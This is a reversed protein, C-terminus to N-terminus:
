ASLRSASRTQLEEAAGAQEMWRQVNVGRALLWLMLSAESLIGVAMNYPVLRDALPPCLYILWVVGAFVMLAGLIRPLFSSRIVLYGILLCYLGHFVMGLNVGRPQWQLAEFALGAFNSLVAPLALSRSVPTFISYLILTVALYCVVPIVVAAFGLRGPFIFEGSVATLVSLLYLIGAIRAKLPPSAGTIRDTMAAASM